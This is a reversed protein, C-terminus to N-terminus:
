STQVHVSVLYNLVQVALERCGQRFEIFSPDDDPIVLVPLELILDIGQGNDARLDQLQGAGVVEISLLQQRHVVGCAAVQDIAREAILIFLIVPQQIHLQIALLEPRILDGHPHVLHLDRLRRGQPLSELHVSLEEFGLATSVLHHCLTRCGGLRGLQLHGDHGRQRIDLLRLRRLDHFSHQLSSKIHLFVGDPLFKDVVIDGFGEPHHDTLAGAILVRVGVQPMERRM